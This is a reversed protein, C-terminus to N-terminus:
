IHKLVFFNFNLSTLNNAQHWVILSETTVPGGTQSLFKCHYSNSDYSNSGYFCSTDMRPELNLKLSWSLGKGGGSHLFVSNIDLSSRLYKHRYCKKYYVLNWSSYKSTWRHWVDYPCWTRFEAFFSTVHEFCGQFVVLSWGSEVIELSTYKEELM